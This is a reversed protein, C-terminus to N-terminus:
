FYKIFRDGKTLAMISFKRDFYQVALQLARERDFPVLSNMPGINTNIVVTMGGNMLQRFNLEDLCNGKCKESYMFWVLAYVRQGSNRIRLYDPREIM